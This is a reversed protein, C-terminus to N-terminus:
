FMIFLIFYFFERIVTGYSGCYAGGHLVAWEGVVMTASIALTTLGFPPV